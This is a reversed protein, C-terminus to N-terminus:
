DPPSPDSLQPFVEWKHRRKSFSLMRGELVNVAFKATDLDAICGSDVSFVDNRLECHIIQDADGVVALNANHTVM